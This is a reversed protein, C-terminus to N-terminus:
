SKTLLRQLELPNAQLSIHGCDMCVTLSIAAGAKMREWTSQKDLWLASSGLIGPELRASHCIPCTKSM